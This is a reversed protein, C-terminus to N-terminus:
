KKHKLKNPEKSADMETSPNYFQSTYSNFHSCNLSRSCSAFYKRTSCTPKTNWHHIPDICSIHIIGEISLPNLYTITSTLFKTGNLGSSSSLRTPNLIQFTLIVYEFSNIEYRQLNIAQKFSHRHYIYIM